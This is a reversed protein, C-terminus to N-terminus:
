FFNGDGGGRYIFKGKGNFANTMDNMLENDNVLRGMVALFDGRFLNSEVEQLVQPFFQTINPPLDQSAPTTNYNLITELIFAGQFNARTSSLYRSFNQVFHNSGCPRGPCACNVQAPCAPQGEELDFAVFLLTYNRECNIKDLFTFFFLCYRQFLTLFTLSLQYHLRM